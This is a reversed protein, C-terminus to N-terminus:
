VMSLTGVFNYICKQPREAFVSAEVNFLEQSSIVCSRVRSGNKGEM